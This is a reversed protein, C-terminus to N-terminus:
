KKLMEVIEKCIPSASAPNQGTVVRGSKVVNPQFLGAEVFEAGHEGLKTELLFPMADVLEVAAEEKNTFCTVKQNKVLYDGNSLRTNVIGLLLVLGCFYFFINIFAIM